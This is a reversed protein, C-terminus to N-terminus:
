KVFRNGELVAHIAALLESVADVKTVYGDGGSNFAERVM